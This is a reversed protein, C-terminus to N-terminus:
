ELRSAIAELRSAIDLLPRWGLLAHEISGFQARESWNAVNGRTSRHEAASVLQLLSVFEATEVQWPLCFVGFVLCQFFVKM